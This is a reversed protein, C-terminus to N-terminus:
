SSDPKTLDTSSHFDEHSIGCKQEPTVETTGTECSATPVHTQALPDVPELSVKGEEGAATRLEAIQCHLFYSIFGHGTYTQARM